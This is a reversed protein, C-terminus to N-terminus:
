YVTSGAGFKQMFAILHKHRDLGATHLPHDTWVSSQGVHVAHCNQTMVRQMPICNDPYFELTELPIIILKGAELPCHHKGFMVLM